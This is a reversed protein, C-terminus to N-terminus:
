AAMYYTQVESSNILPSYNGTLFLRAERARRPILVSPKNHRSFGIIIDSPSASGSNIKKALSSNKFGSEGINFALSILADKQFKKLPVKITDRVVKEFRDLDTNLWSAALKPSIQKGLTGAINDAKLTRVDKATILHGTGATPLGRTDPYVYTRYGEEKQLFKLGSKSIDRRSKIYRYTGYGIGGAVLIALLIKVGPRM